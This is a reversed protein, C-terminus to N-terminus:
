ELDIFPHVSPRGAFTRDAALANRYDTLIGKAASTVPGPSHELGYGEAEEREARERAATWKEGAELFRKLIPVVIAGATAAAENEAQQAASQKAAFQEKLSQLSYTRITHLQESKAHKGQEALQRSYAQRAAEDTFKCRQAYCSLIEKQLDRLRKNEDKTPMLSPSAAWIARCLGRRTDVPKRGIVTDVAALVKEAFANM